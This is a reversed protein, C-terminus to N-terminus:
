NRLVIAIKGSTIACSGRTVGPRAPNGTPPYNSDLWLMHEEDDDWLSMVLVM